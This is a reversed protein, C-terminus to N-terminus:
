LIRRPSRLVREYVQVTEGACRRWSFQAARQLGLHKLHERLPRRLWLQEMVGAWAHPDNPPVLYGADAVVERIASIDSAVIPAGNAMGELPTLGFGEYLAPHLLAVCERYLDGLTQDPVYGSFTIADSVGLAAALSSIERGSAKESGALILRADPIKSRLQQLARVLLDVNKRPQLNGVYLFYPGTHVSNGVTVGVVAPRPALYTVTIKNEPIDYLRMIDQKSCESITIVHNARRLSWPVLQNLLLATRRDFWEPYLAFTVDHVTVISRCPLIPPLIYTGHWIDLRDRLAMLPSVVPIRILPNLVPLRHQRHTEIELDRSVYADVDLGVAHLGELLGLVYTENGTERAGIMHADIGIKVKYIGGMSGFARSDRRSAM